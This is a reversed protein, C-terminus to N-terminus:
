VDQKVRKLSRSTSANSTGGQGWATSGLSRRSQLLHFPRDQQGSSRAPLDRGVVPLMWGGVVVVGLLSSGGLQRRWGSWRSGQAITQRRRRRRLLLSHELKGRLQPVRVRVPICGSCVAAADGRSPVAGAPVPRLGERCGAHLLKRRSTCSRQHRQAPELSLWSRPKPMGLALIKWCCLTLLCSRTLPFPEELLSLEAKRTINM